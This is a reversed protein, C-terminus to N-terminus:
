FNLGFSEGCGCHNLANPNDFILKYNLGEKKYDMICNEFALLDKELIMFSIGQVKFLLQEVNNAIDIVKTVYSFGSCGSKKVGLQIAKENNTLKSLHEKATPTLIVNLQKNM